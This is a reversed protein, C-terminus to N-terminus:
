DTVLQQHVYNFIHEKIIRETRKNETFIVKGSGEMSSKILFTITYEVNDDKLDTKYINIVPDDSLEHDTLLNNGCEERIFQKLADIDFVYHQKIWFTLYISIFQRKSHNVVTNNILDSNPIIFEEGKLSKLITYRPEIKWVKGTHGNVTIYDKIMIEQEMNIIMSALFDNIINRFAFGVAAVSIAFGTKAWDSLEVNWGYVLWLYIAVPIISYKLTAFVFLVIQDDLVTETKRVRPLVALLLFENLRKLMIVSVILYLGFVIPKQFRALYGDAKLHYIALYILTAIIFNLVAPLSENYKDKLAIRYQFIKLGKLFNIILKWYLLGISAPILFLAEKTYANV